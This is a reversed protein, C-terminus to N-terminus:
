LCFILYLCEYVNIPQQDPPIYMSLITERWSWLLCQYHANQTIKRMIIRM